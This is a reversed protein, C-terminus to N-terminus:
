KIAEIFEEATQFREAPKKAMAKQIAAATHRPLTSVVERADPPPATMHALLLAGTGSRKFPLAGTLVQYTVVGLAYIDACGDVDTAAQIQEPAIYDFTGLVASATINTHAGSLKAIGFDTLVARPCDAAGDLMVNSPKVDRHILGFSHAYDLAGAVDKLLSYAQELPVQGTQKLYAALNKGNLYEMVMYYLDNEMGYDFIRVINPHELGALTQAERQFRKRFQEDEALNSLLVKIAVPTHSTPHEARYVEAMGGKGILELNSYSSFLLPAQTQTDSSLQSRIRAKVPTKLYDIHIHYFARDVFRQLAKRTPQFLAGAALASLALGLTSQQGTLMNLLANFLILVLAFASALIVTLTGYVLARNILFDIDFLKYRAIAITLCAPFALFLFISLVRLTIQFVLYALAAQNQLAPILAIPVNYLIYWLLPGLMGLFVWRIQQRQNLNTVQRYRYTMVGLTVFYWSLSVGLSVLSSVKPGYLPSSPWYQLAVSLLFVPLLYKLWKPLFRGDPYLWGLLVIGAEGLMLIPSAWFQYATQAAIENGVNSVRVGFTIIMISLFIALWDDSRHLFLIVALSFYGLLIYVDTFVDVASYSFLSFSIRTIQSFLSGGSSFLAGASASTGMYLLGAIYFVLLVWFVQLVLRLTPRDKLSTHTVTSPTASKNM